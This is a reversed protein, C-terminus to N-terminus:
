TNHLSKNALFSNKNMNRSFWLFPSVITRIKPASFNLIKRIPLIRERNSLRENTPNNNIMAGFLGPLSKYGGRWAICKQFSKIKFRPKGIDKSLSLELAVILTHLLKWKENEIIKHKTCFFHYTWFFESPHITPTQSLRLKSRDLSNQSEIYCDLCFGFLHYPQLHLINKGDQKSKLHIM